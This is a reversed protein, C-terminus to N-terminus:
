GDAPDHLARRIDAMERRVAEAEATGARCEALRALYPLARAPDRMGFRYHDAIEHLAMIETRSGPSSCALARRFWTVADQPRAMEDRLLHALRLCPEPDDPRGAAAREYEQAAADLLGRAILSQGLSYEPRGPTSSGSGLYISSGIRGASAALWLLAFYTIAWASVAFVVVFAVPLDTKSVILGGAIAGLVPAPWAQVFTRIRHAREADDRDRLPTV